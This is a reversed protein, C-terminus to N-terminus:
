RITASVGSIGPSITNFLSDKSRYRVSNCPTLRSIWSSSANVAIRTPDRRSIAVSPWGSPM